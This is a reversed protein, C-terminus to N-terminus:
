VAFVVAGYGVVWEGRSEPHDDGSNRYHLVAAQRCGRAQAFRMAALVPGIGCFVQRGPNWERRVAAADMAAVKELTRRDTRTVLDYDADHLMDTSALVVVRRRSALANLAAAVDAVTEEEHDGMLGVVLRAAPLAVQVFPIENEASHEGAHPRHDATIRPSKGALVAAAEEDLPAVGLPTEVGSGDLLALGPFGGRHSFGLVVVTEPTGAARANDRLARFTFGAVKGSYIYGAHPAIGAVIRGAVAPPDANEIFRTVMERLRDPEGPFWRGGGYTPRVTQRTPM